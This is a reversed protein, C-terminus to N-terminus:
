QGHPTSPVLSGRSRKTERYLLIMPDDERYPRATPARYPEHKSQRQRSRECTRCRDYVKGNAHRGRHPVINEPEIPHGCKPFYLTM